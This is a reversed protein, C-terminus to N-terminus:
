HGAYRLQACAECLGEPSPPVLLANHINFDTYLKNKRGTTFGPQAALVTICTLGLPM